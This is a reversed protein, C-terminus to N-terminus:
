KDSANHFTYCCISPLTKDSLQICSRADRFANLEAAIDTLKRHLICNSVNQSFFVVYKPPFPVADALPSDEDMPKALEAKVQAM